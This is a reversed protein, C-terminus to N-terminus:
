TPFPCYTLTKNIIGIITSMCPCMNSIYTNTYSICSFTSKTKPILFINSNSPTMFEHSQQKSKKLLDMGMKGFSHITNFGFSHLNIFTSAHNMSSIEHNAIILTSSLFLYLVLISLNFNMHFKAVNSMVFLPKSVIM